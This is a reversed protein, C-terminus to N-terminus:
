GNTNGAETRTGPRPYTVLNDGCFPTEGHQPCFLPCPEPVGCKGVHRLQVNEGHLCSSQLLRCVNEYNQDDSYHVSPLNRQSQEGTGCVPSQVSPCHHPCDEGAMSSSLLCVVLLMLM